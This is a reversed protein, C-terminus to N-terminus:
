NILRASLDYASTDSIKGRVIKGPRLHKNNIFVSGDIEPADMYTRGLSGGAIGNDVIIEFVKNLLNRNLQRSIMNQRKMLTHFRVDKVKEPVQGRMKAAPTGSEKSYKFIGLREFRTKAVFGLLEEFDSKNEGPFGVLFTTRLVIQPIERRIKLILNEVERRGYRRGMNKLIKDCIHQLPLDLYKCIKKEKKITRILNDTIHAPHTYMIRIWRIGKIRATKQLLRHLVRQGYLDIGYNTTDQAVYIIEKTGTKALAKVEQLISAMPRSRYPGRISPITCYSCRNDCGDAIKVYAYHTPTLKVKNANNSRPWYVGPALSRSDSGSPRTEPGLPIPYKASRLKDSDIFADVEPLLKRLKNGYRSPLCGIVILYKCKGKHKYKAANLITDLSEETASQIFACTNILIIDASKPDSIIQHGAQQLQGLVTETDTLNKPCGLSICYLKL